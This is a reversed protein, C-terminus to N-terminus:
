CDSGRGCTAFRTGVRRSSIFLAVFDIKFSKQLVSHVSNKVFKAFAVSLCIFQCMSACLCLLTYLLQNAVLFPMDKPYLDLMRQYEKLVEHYFDSKIRLVLVSEIKVFPWIDNM